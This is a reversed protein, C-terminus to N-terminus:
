LLEHDMEQKIKEISKGNRRYQIIKNLREVTKGNFFRYNNRLSRGEEKILGIRLYYNITHISLGTERALDGILYIDKLQDGSL